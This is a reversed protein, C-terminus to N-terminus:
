ESPPKPKESDDVLRIEQQGLCHCHEADLSYRSCRPCAAMGHEELVAQSQKRLAADDGTRNYFGMIVLVARTVKGSLDKTVSHLEARRQASKKRMDDNAESMEKRVAAEATRHTDVAERATALLRELRAIEPHKQPGPM